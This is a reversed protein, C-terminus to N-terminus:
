CNALTSVPFLLNTRTKACTQNELFTLDRRVCSAWNELSPVLVLLVSTQPRRCNALKSITIRSVNVDTNLHDFPLKKRFSHKTYHIDVIDIATGRGTQLPVTHLQALHPSPLSLVVDRVVCYQQLHTDLRILKWCQKTDSCQSKKSWRCKVAGGHQRRVTGDIPVLISSLELKLYGPTM